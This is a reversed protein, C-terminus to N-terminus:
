GEAPEGPLLQAGLQQLVEVWEAAAWVETIRGERVTLLHIGRWTVSRGTAPLLGWLTGRHTGSATWRLIVRPGAEVLEDIVYHLDPFTARMRLHWDVMLEPTAEEGENRFTAPHHALLVTRRADADPENWGEDVWRRVM